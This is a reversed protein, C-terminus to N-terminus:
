QDIMGRKKFEREIAKKTRNKHKRVLKGALRANKGSLAEIIMKHEALSPAARKPVYSFVSQMLDFKGWLDVIAKFLNPYSGARYVRLHFDKNLPGLNDHECAIVAKEEMDLYKNLANIDSENMNPAALKTALVELEIRMLYIELFEDSDM